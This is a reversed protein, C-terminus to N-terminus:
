NSEVYSGGDPSSEPLIPAAKVYIAELDKLMHEAAITIAWLMYLSLATSIITVVLLAIELGTM